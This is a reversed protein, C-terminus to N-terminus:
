VSLVIGKRETLQATLIIKVSKARKISNTYTHMKAQTHLYTHKNLTSLM